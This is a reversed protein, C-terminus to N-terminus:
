FQEGICHLMAIGTKGIIFFRVQDRPVQQSIINLPPQDQRGVLIFKHFYSEFPPFITDTYLNGVHSISKIEAFVQLKIIRADEIVM